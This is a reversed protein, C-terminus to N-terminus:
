VIFISNMISFPWVTRSTLRERTRVRVSSLYSDAENENMLVYVSFMEQARSLYSVFLSSM